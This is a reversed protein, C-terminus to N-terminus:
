CYDLMKTFRDILSIMNNAIDIHKKVSFSIQMYLVTLDIHGTVESTCNIEAM